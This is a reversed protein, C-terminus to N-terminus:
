LGCTRYSIKVYGDNDNNYKQEIGKENNILLKLFRVSPSLRHILGPPILSLDDQKGFQSSYFANNINIYYPWDRSQCTGQM